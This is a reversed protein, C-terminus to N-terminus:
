RGVEHRVTRWALFARRWASLGELARKRDRRDGLCDLIGALRESVARDAADLLDTGAPTLVHDVRRRDSEQHRREVLGRAV